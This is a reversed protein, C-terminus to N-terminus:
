VSTSKANPELLSRITRLLQKFKIPQVLTAVGPYDAVQEAWAPRASDLMLIGCCPISQRHADQLIRAFVYFSDEGTTGANVIM